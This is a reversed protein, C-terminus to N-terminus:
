RLSRAVGVSLSVRSVAQTSSFDRAELEDTTFRHYDYRLSAMFDWRDFAPRRYDAGAGALWRTSGGQRFIGTDDSPWYMLAGLGARWRIGQALPGELNLLLSGTRLTGLDTEVPGEESHFGGSTVAAELGVRYGPSIPLSAGFAVMPAISQRVNIESVIVDRLLDSAWIAGVRAYYDTQGHLAATSAPFLVALILLSRPM